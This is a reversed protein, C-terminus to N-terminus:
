PKSLAASARALAASLSEPTIPKALYDDMGMALARQYDTTMVDATLAVIYVRRGGTPEAERILRTAAVGGMRPMQLDMLVVDPATEAVARVAEDGDEAYRTDQYGLRELFLKVVRRNVANDEAVLLRLPHRRAFGEDLRAPQESATAMDSELSAADDVPLWVTATAGQGPESDLRIDGGMAHVLRQCIALGLGSGGHRRSVAGEGQEFPQFLKARVEASLGPGTDRITLRVRRGASEHERAAELTVSGSSTFKIANGLLNVLVQRVRDPDGPLTDPVEDGLTLSLRLGKREAEPRLIKGAQDVCGRLSYPRRDLRMQGAEIRSYDLIDNIVALLSQSSARITEMCERQQEDLRTESLVQAMGLVGNLPTRIEHSMTALFVSKARSAELSAAAAEEALQRAAATEEAARAVAALARRRNAAFIVAGVASGFLAAWLARRFPALNADISNIELDVGVVGLVNGEADFFPAFGSLFTGWRDTYPRPPVTTKGTRFAEYLEPPAEEYTEGPVVTQVDDDNPHVLYHTTDLTFVPYPAGPRLTYAYYLDPVARRLRLLPEIARLYAEDGVELAREHAEVDLSTAAFTALEGLTERMQRLLGERAQHHLYALAAGSILVVAVGILVAERLPRVLKASASPSM